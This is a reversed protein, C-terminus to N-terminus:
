CSRCPCVSLNPFSPQPVRGASQGNEVVLVQYAEPRLCDAIAALQEQGLHQFIPMARLTSEHRQRREIQFHRSRAIAAEPATCTTASCGCRACAPLVRPVAALGWWAAWLWAEFPPATWPGCCAQPAPLLASYGCSRSLQLQSSRLGYSSSVQARRGESTGRRVRLSRRSPRQAPATTCSLWSELPATAKM